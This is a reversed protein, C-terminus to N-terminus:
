CSCNIKATAAESKGLVVEKHTSLGELEDKTELKCHIEKVLMQFAERVNKDTKASV